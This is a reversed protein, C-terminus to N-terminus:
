IRSMAIESQERKSSPIEFTPSAVAGVNQLFFEIQALLGGDTRNALHLKANMEEALQKAVALGLGTGPIAKCRDGELRVFPMKVSELKDPAIGPGRDLVAVVIGAKSRCIKVEASGGYKIANDVFNSLIRRLAVPKLTLVCDMSEVLSVPRGTDQYDFILSEVFSRLHVAVAAETSRHSNTAYSLGDKILQEAESLDSLLKDREPFGETLELRLRMRTIPTQVDHSFSSFVRIRELHLNDRCEGVESNVHNSKNNTAIAFRTASPDRALSHGLPPIRGLSLRMELYALFLACSSTVGVVFVKLHVDDFVWLATLGSATIVSVARFTFILRQQVSKRSCALLMPKFFGRQLLNFGHWREGALMENSSAASDAPVGWLDEKLVSM